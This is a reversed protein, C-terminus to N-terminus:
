YHQRAHTPPPPPYSLPFPICEPIWAIGKLVTGAYQGLTRFDQNPTTTTWLRVIRTGNRNNAKHMICLYILFDADSHFAPDADFFLEPLLQPPESISDYIISIPSGHLSVILTSSWFQIQSALLGIVLGRISEV